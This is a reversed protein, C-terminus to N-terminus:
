IPNLTLVKDKSCATWMFDGLGNINGKFSFCLEPDKLDTCIERAQGAVHPENNQILQQPKLSKSGTTRKRSTSTATPQM